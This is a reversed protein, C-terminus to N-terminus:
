VDILVTEVALKAAARKDELWEYINVVSSGARFACTDSSSLVVAAVVESCTLPHVAHSATSFVGYVLDPIAQPAVLPMFELALIFNVIQQLRLM